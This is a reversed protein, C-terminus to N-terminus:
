PRDTGYAHERAGNANRGIAFCVQAVDIERSPDASV